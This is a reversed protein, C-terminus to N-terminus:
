LKFSARLLIERGRSVFGLQDPVIGPGATGTTAGSGSFIVGATRQYTYTNGLNRGILAFEIGNRTTLSATADIIWFHPQISTPNNTADTFYSGSYSGDVSFAYALGDNAHIDFTAGLNGVWDPARVIHAGSLDQRAVGGVLVCGLSIIQGTYCPSAVYSNYRARNYALASHLSVPEYPTKWTAELEAGRSSSTAANNIFQTAGVISTVIMNDVKYDYAAFNLRLANDFYLGKIGLEFGKVKEADFSRDLGFAAISGSGPNFGGSLFGKKWALFATLTPSPRWTTVFEPSFDSWKREPVATPVAVPNSTGTPGLDFFSISKSEHSYRGGASLEDTDIPKFLVNGFASWANGKQTEKHSILAGGANNPTVANLLVVSRSWLDQSQYYGGVM